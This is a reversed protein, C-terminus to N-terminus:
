APSVNLTEVTCNWVVYSGLGPAAGSIILYDDIRASRAWCAKSHESAEETNDELRIPGSRRKQSVDSRTSDGRRRLQWYPPSLPAISEDNNSSPAETTGDEHIITIREPSVTGNSTSPEMCKLADPHQAEHKIDVPPLRYISNM